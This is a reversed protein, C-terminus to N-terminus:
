LAQQELVGLVYTLFYELEPTQCDPIKAAEDWSRLRLASESWRNNEFSDLERQDFPGGQLQLSLVSAPSLQSHYQQDIACRYRKAAVHLRIPETVEPPFYRVLWQAGITEHLDDIGQTACNEDHKHLLHGIDHLLAAVILDPSGGAQEASYAAQLAHETQTVPEGAYMENGKETFLHRIEEVIKAPDHEPM